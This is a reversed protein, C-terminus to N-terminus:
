SLMKPVSVGSHYLEFNGNVRDILLINDKFIVWTAAFIIYFSAILCFCRFCHWTCLTCIWWPYSNVKERKRLLRTLRLRFSVIKSVIKPSSPDVAGLLGWYVEPYSFKDIKPCSIWTLLIFFSYSFKGWKDSM